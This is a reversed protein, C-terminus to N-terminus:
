RGQFFFDSGRLLHTAALTMSTDTLDMKTTRKTEQTFLRARYTDGKTTFVWRTGIPPLGREKVAGHEGATYVHMEKMYKIEPQM